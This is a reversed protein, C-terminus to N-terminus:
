IPWSRSSRIETERDLRLREESRRHVGFAVHFGAAEVSQVLDERAANRTARVTSLIGGGRQLIDM